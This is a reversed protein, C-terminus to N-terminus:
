YQFLPLYDIKRYLYKGEQSTLTYTNAKGREKKVNVLGLSELEKVLRAFKKLNMGALSSMYEVGSYRMNARLCYDIILYVVALETSVLKNNIVKYPLQSFNKKQKEINHYIIVDRTKRNYLFTMHLGRGSFKDLFDDVPQIVRKLGQKPHNSTKIGLAGLFEDVNMRLMYYNSINDRINANALIFLLPKLVKHNHCGEILYNPVALTSNCDNKPSENEKNLLLKLSPSLDNLLKLNDEEDFCNMM